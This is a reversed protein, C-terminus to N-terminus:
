VGFTFRSGLNSAVVAHPMRAKMREIFESGTCHMPLIVDPNLKEMEDVTMGIYESPSTALHFGGIVAHVKDSNTVAMATRVTNIIGTHGCSSIVVLGRGKVIYCTAHEEPHSDSVMKGAREEPTFHDVDEMVLSGGTIKEFSTREIYGTTFAQDLVKPEGCCVPIVRQSVLAHRNLSGWSSLGAEGDHNGIPRSKVWKERFVDEAGIYLSVDDRMKHRFNQVFGELGGYHDRHGHSLILGNLKEPEIALIDFNRSVIEPTYGFDLLYQARAGSSVSELHLSLGWEGALCTMQRGPVQGTHEIHVNDHMMRPLFREYRSDVVVRVALEDVVPAAFPTTPATTAACM